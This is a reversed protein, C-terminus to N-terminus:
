GSHFDSHFTQNLEGCGIGTQQDTIGRKNAKDGPKHERQNDHNTYGDLTTRLDEGGNMVEDFMDDDYETLGIVVQSMRRQEPPAAHKYSSSGDCISREALRRPRKELFM